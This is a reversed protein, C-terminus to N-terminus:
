ISTGWDLKEIEECLKLYEDVTIARLRHAMSVAGFAYDFGLVKDEDTYITNLLNTLTECSSEFM